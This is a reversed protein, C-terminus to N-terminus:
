PAQQSELEFQQPMLGFNKFEDAIRPQLATAAAFDSEAAATKEQRLLAQGRGYLAWANQPNLKLSDNFDSIAHVSDPTRDTGAQLRGLRDAARALTRVTRSL